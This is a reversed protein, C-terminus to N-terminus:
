VSTWFGRSERGLREKLPKWWDPHKRFWAVTDRLGDEFRTEPRWGLERTIKTNDLAYRFDHGPRDCVLEIFENTEPKQNKTGPERVPPALEHNKTEPEHNATKLGRAGTLGMMEVVLTAVDINRRESEGGINYAECPTGRELALEIARCCDEV